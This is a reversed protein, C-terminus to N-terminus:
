KESSNLYNDDFYDKFKEGNIQVRVCFRSIPYDTFTGVQKWKIKLSKYEVREIEIRM